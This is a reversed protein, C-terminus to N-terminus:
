NPKSGAPQKFAALRGFTEAAFNREDLNTAFEFQTVELKTQRKQAVNKLVMVKIFWGGEFMRLARIDFVKRLKNERDYGEALMLLFQEKAIWSVVKGYLTGHDAPPRSEIVYCLQAQRKEEKVLKHGPWRLFSFDFDEYAFDTGAFSERLTEGDIKERPADHGPGKRHIAHAGSRKDYVAMLAQGTLNTPSVIVIVTRISEATNRTQLQVTVSQERGTDGPFKLTAQALFDKQPFRSLVDAIVAEGSAEQPHARAALLLTAAVTWAIRKM